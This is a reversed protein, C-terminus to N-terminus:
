LRCSLRWSSHALDVVLTAAVNANEGGKTELGEMGLLAKWVAVEAGGVHKSCAAWEVIRDHEVRGHGSGSLVEVFLHDHAVFLSTKCWGRQKPQAIGPRGHEKWQM